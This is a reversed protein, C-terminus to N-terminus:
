GEEIHVTNLTRCRDKTNRGTHPLIFLFVNNTNNHTYRNKNEKLFQRMM